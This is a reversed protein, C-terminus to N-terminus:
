RVVVSKKGNAAPGDPTEVILLIVALKEPVGRTSPRDPNMREIFVDVSQQWGTAKDVGLTSLWVENEGAAIAANRVRRRYHRLLPEPEATEHCLVYHLRMPARMFGETGAEGDPWTEHYRHIVRADAHLEIPPEPPSPTTNEDRALVERRQAAEDIRECAGRVTQRIFVTWPDAAERQNAQVAGGRSKRGLRSHGGSEEAWQQAASKLGVIFGPESAVAEALGVGELGGPGDPWNRALSERLAARTSEIPLTSALAVAAGEDDLSDLRALRREVWAATRQSRVVELVQSLSESDAEGALWAQRFANRTEASAAGGRSGGVSAEQPPIDLDRCVGLAGYAAFQSALARDSVAVLDAHELLVLQAPVNAPRAEVLSELIPGLYPSQNRPRCAAEALKARFGGSLKPSELVDAVVRDLKTRSRKTRPQDSEPSATMLVHLLRAENEPTPDALPARLVTERAVDDDDTSFRGALVDDLAKRAVDTRNKVLAAVIARVENPRCRRASGRRRDKADDPQARLLELLTAAANPNDAFHDGVYAIAEIFRSDRQIKAEIYDQKKWEALNEPRRPKKSPRKRPPPPQDGRARIAAVRATEAAKRERDAAEAKEEAIRREERIRKSREIEEQSVIPAGGDCGSFIPLLCGSAM